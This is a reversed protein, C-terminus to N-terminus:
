RGTIRGGRALRARRHPRDVEGTDRNVARATIRGDQTVMAELHQNDPVSDYARTLKDIAISPNGEKMAQVAYRGYKEADLKGRMVIATAAERAKKLDVIGQPSGGLWYNVSYDLMKIRHASDNLEGAPDVAREAMHLQADSMASEGRHFRQRNMDINRDEGPLPVVAPWAM